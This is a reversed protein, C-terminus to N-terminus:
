FAGDLNLRRKSFESPKVVRNRLLNVMLLNNSLM